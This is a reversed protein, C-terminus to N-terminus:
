EKKAVEITTRTNWGSRRYTFLGHWQLCTCIWLNIASVFPSLILWNGLQSLTSQDPRKVLLTRASRIYSLGAVYLIFHWPIAGNVIPSIVLVIPFVVAYLCFTIYQSLVMWWIARKPSQRRLLWAGGWWFSRWWRSRQRTLHGMREPMLTYGVSAENFVTAGEFSAFGTLARDDGLAAPNGGVTQHLYADLHKYIASMRYFALGGCNVAVSRLASWASRGNVFSSVFGIDVIRTLLNTKRNESVLLGAVSQVTNDSFPVLGQEIANPDLRTDSDVTVLVDVGFENLLRIGVAQAERKGPQKRHVYDTIRISTTKGWERFVQELEPEETGNEILIVFDPLTTQRDFSDLMARLMGPDEKYAPVVIGISLSPAKGRWRPNVHALVINLTLWAFSVIVIPALLYASVLHRAHYAALAVIAIGVLIGIIPYTRRLTVTGNNTYAPPPLHIFIRRGM